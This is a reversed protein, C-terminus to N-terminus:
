LCENESLLIFKSRHGFIGSLFKISHFIRSRQGRLIANAGMQSSKVEAIEIVWGQRDKKLRALDIQGM